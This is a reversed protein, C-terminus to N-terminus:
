VVGWRLFDRIVQDAHSSIAEATLAVKPWRRRTTVREAECAIVMSQPSGIFELRSFRNSGFALVLRVRLHLVGTHTSTEHIGSATADHGWHDAAEAALHLRALVAHRMISRCAEVHGLWAQHQREAELQWIAANGVGEAAADDFPNRAGM